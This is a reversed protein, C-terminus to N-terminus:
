TGEPINYATKHPPHAPIVEVVKGESVGLYANAADKTDFPGFIGGPLWKLTVVYM